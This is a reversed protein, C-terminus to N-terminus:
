ARALDSMSPSISCNMASRVLLRGRGVGRFGTMAHLRDDRLPLRQASLHVGNDPRRQALLAGSGARSVQEGFPAAIGQGKNLGGNLDPSAHEGGVLALRAVM